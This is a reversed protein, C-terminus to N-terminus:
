SPEGDVKFYDIFKFAMSGNREMVFEGRNWNHEGLTARTSRSGQEYKSVSTHSEVAGNDTNNNPLMILPSRGVDVRVDIEGSQALGMDTLGQVQPLMPPGVEHDIHDTDCLFNLDNREIEINNAAECIAHLSQFENEKDIEVSDFFNNENSQIHHVLERQFSASYDGYQFGDDPTPNELVKTLYQDHRDTHYPSTDISRECTTSHEGVEENVSQNEIPNRVSSSSISKTAINLRRLPVKGVRRNTPNTSTTIDYKNNNSNILNNLRNNTNINVNTSFPITPRNLPKQERLRRYYDLEGKARIKRYPWRKIGHKRLVKSITPRSVQLCIQADAVPMDFHARCEEFTLPFSRTM